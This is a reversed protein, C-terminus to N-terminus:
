RLRFPHFHSSLSLQFASFSPSLRPPFLFIYSSISFRLRRNQLPYGETSDSLSYSPLLFPRVCSRCLSRPRYPLLLTFLYSRVSPLASPLARRTKAPSNSNPPFSSILLLATFSAAFREDKPSQAHRALSRSLKECLPLASLSAILSFAAFNDEGLQAAFM